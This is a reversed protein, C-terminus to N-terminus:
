KFRPESDSSASGVRTSLVNGLGLLNLSFRFENDPNKGPRDPNRRVYDLSLAWCDFKFDVGFRTEVVSTTRIDWNTKIRGYLNRLIEVNAAGQLFHTAQNSMLGNGPNFTGPIQVFYPVIVAPMRTYRTGVLATIRPVDLAVDTSYAQLGDGTVNYSLDGHFRLLRSPQFTLDGAVNGLQVNEFDYASALVLKFLDFRDAEANEGGITRGRVRNTLSYEFWNAEPIQDTLSTWIPLSYFNHGVIRIYHVRPEVSHLVRELNGFGGLEYVRSARSEADSGYELLERVRPEGNTDEIAIGGGVPTHVGTVTTSYATVRGGVFPTVTAYGALPIPRAVIPHVDFRAGESGAYRFFNVLSTDAQYLLGPLGPVPQRGGSLTLEPVRQLEVPRETTLDQYWYIRSVFNWNTWTKTLFLNSEARQASRQQLSSEYDRLVLDDSVANLDARLSLGPAIQWDHKVSGFGRWESEKFVEDVFFGDLKGKQDRSIVYRYEVAGGFGRREYAALSVTADQSDSIAWFFPIEAFFGKKTSTGLLPPLFGSQRERRIAAAFFPFYPIIPVSKAWFSVNWGYVFDELDATGEGLHFSWTPPDDECTTFVGQRVRYVSEGLRELREGSLRYYPAAHVEGQHVVGTGTKINYEIREGTLRDDGDYFIARGIAVADGTERNIEVRDAMLRGSGRSVEVNGTAVLLNDPGIQEFRDAVISVEGGPTQLSRQGQARASPPTAVLAVVAVLLIVLSAGAQRM